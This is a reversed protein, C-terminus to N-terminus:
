RTAGETASCEHKIFVGIEEPAAFFVSARDGMMGAPVIIPKGSLPGTDSSDTKFRLNAEWFDWSEGDATTVQYTDRCYRIAQVQRDPGLKKLDTFQPAAAAAKGASAKASAEKLYAILDARQKANPVGAFTMRNHPILETPSKLWEDLTTENWVIKSDRLAPSYREFTRLSGAQREWVGALSPGTMNRDPALSHCAACARYLQEGQKADGSPAAAYAAFAVIAVITSLVAASLVPIRLRHM